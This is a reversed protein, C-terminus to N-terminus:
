TSDWSPQNESLRDCVCDDVSARVGANMGACDHGSGHARRSRVMEREWPNQLHEPGFAAVYPRHLYGGVALMSRRCLRHKELWEQPLRHLHSWAADLAHV